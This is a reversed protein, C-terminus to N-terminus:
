IPLNACPHANQLDTLPYRELISDERKYDHTKIRNALWITMKGIERATVINGNRLDMAMDTLLALRWRMDEAKSPSIIMRRNIEEM